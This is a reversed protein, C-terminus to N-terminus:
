EDKKSKLPEKKEIVSVVEKPIFPVGALKATAADGPLLSGEKLKAIYHWHYPVVVGEALISQGAKGILRFEVLPKGQEDIEHVHADTAIVFLKVNKYRPSPM